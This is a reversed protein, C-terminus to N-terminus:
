RKQLDALTELRSGYEGASREPRHKTPLEKTEHRSLQRGTSLRSARDLRWAVDDLEVEEVRSGDSKTGGNFYVSRRDPRRLM